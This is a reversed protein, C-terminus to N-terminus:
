GFPIPDDIIEDEINMSVIKHDPFASKAERMMENLKTRRYVRIAMAVERRTLIPLDPHAEQVRPWGRDDHLIGFQHGDAEVILVDDSAPKKGAARAEADMVALGRVCVAARAAVVASDNQNIAENLKALASGYKEATTTSVLEPLTDVGWTWDAERAARDFPALALDCKIEEKNADQRILRDELKQRRPRKGM